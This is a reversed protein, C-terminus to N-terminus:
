LVTPRQQFAFNVDSDSFREEGGFKDRLREWPSEALALWSGLKAGDSTNIYLNRVRGVGYGYREPQAFKAFLPWRVWNLTVLAVQVRPHCIVALFAVYSALLGSVSRLILTSLRM